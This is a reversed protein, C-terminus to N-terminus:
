CIYLGFYNDLCRELRGTQAKSHALTLEFYNDLCREWRGTQAKSHALTLEFYALRFGIHTLM